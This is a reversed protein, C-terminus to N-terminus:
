GPRFVEYEGDQDPQLPAAEDWSKPNIALATTSNLAEEWSVEKGTYAAMTGMIPFLSGYAGREAENHDLDERIAKFLADHELQYSNGAEKGRYPKVSPDSPTVIGNRKFSLEATGKTGHM